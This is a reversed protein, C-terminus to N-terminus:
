TRPESQNASVERVEIGVKAYYYNIGQLQEVLRLRAASLDPDITTCDIIM